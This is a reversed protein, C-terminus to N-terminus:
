PNEEPAKQRNKSNKGRARELQLLTSDYLRAKALRSQAWYYRMREEHKDLEANVLSRMIPELIAINKETRKLERQITRHKQKVENAMNAPPLYPADVSELQAIKRDLADLETAMSELVVGFREQEREELSLSYLRLDQSQEKLKNRIEISRSFSNKLNSSFSKSSSSALILLHQDAQNAWHILNDKIAYLDALEKLTENFSNSAMLDILFPTLKQYNVSPQAGYWDSDSVIAELNDIFERPVERMAIIKRAAAVQAIGKEFEKEALLNAKLAKRPSGEQEYLHSLLVKAEQVEPLSISRRNLSELAPVADSYRKLKIASWAYTLLARNSYLGGTRIDKLYLWAQPYRGAQIALQSLGHKARDALVSLEESTGSFQSVSELNAVAEPLKGSRLHGIAMNFLLYPYVPTEHAIKDLHQQAQGLHQGNIQILTALYHYLLHIDHPVEGKVQMLAETAAAIESKNYYFKALYYWARNRIDLPQSKALVAKFLRYAEDPVGYSLMMGGKLVQGDASKAVSNNISINYEFEVLANFYDKQFYDFLITGYELEARSTAGAFACSSFCGSVWLLLISFVGFRRHVRCNSWPPMRPRPCVSSQSGTIRRVKVGRQLISGTAWVIAGIARM